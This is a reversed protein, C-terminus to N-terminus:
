YDDIQDWTLNYQDEIIGDGGVDIEVEILSNIDGGLIDIIIKDNIQNSIILEGKYPYSDNIDKYLKESTEISYSGLETDEVDFSFDTTFQSYYDEEIIHTNTISLKKTTDSFIITNDIGIRENRVYGTFETRIHDSSGAWLITLESETIQLNFTISTLEYNQDLYAVYSGNVITNTDTSVLCDTYTNTVRYGLNEPILIGETFSGSICLQSSNEQLEQTTEGVRFLDTNTVRLIVRGIDRVVEESNKVLVSTQDTNDSSSCSSIILPLLILFLLGVIRKYERM